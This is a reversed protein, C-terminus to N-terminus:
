YEERADRLFKPMAAEAEEEIEAMEHPDFRLQPLQRLRRAKPRSNDEEDPQEVANRLAYKKKEIFVRLALIGDRKQSDPADDRTISWVAILVMASVACLLMAGGIM